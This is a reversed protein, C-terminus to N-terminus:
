LFSVPDIDITVRLSGKPKPAAALWKAIFDQLPAAREGRVLFRIRHRGRVVALPADAPGLVSLDRSEPIHQALARAHSQVLSRDDASVILAALRGFPPMRTRQRAGIEAQYFAESDGSILATMVPHAPQYTQILARGETAARGARGTVQSLMQFTRESARLDGNELGLDADVVGVLSLMPFTHGKAVLQTGIILDVDGEKIADFERRLRTTGGLLDSSLTVRRAGPFRTAVEEEIREIGPGCATLSDLDGCQPCAEQVPESHGCHHCTLQKRFRHEVLWSACNPCGFRHGCSRCLTLPAYGRRNLFLLAQEGKQLTRDLASVLPPSLWAGREPREVRMDIAKITPMAQGGARSLLRVTKFRDAEVNTRTEISPTASSLIVPFKALHGRVIAMDRASYHIGDEQKFASDHEEDVVILGLDPFPLFLASRAGMILHIQGLAVGRWTRARLKPTLGSHWEGPKAGFREELRGILSQTLAIEPLLVLVQRGARLTQAIAELYVNTKGSGTVGELVLPAHQRSAIYDRIQAVAAAQEQSFLVPSADPDPAAWLATQPLDVRELVEAAILGDIVSASVGAVKALGSRSWAFGEKATAILRQRAATMKAPRKGTLRVGALPPEEDLAEPVRVVMKLIMGPPSMTYRAVWDVFRRIDQGLPPTPFVHAIDRLKKISIAGDSDQGCVVGWVVGIVFRPGLPVRVYSGEPLSGFPSVYSYPRPTPLPVMVRLIVPTVAVAGPECSTEDAEPSAPDNATKFSGVTCSM